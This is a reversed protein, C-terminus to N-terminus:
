YTNRSADIQSSRADYGSFLPGYTITNTLTSDVGSAQLVQRHLLLKGANRAFYALVEFERPTLSVEAGNLRVLRASFDVELADIKSSASSNRRANFEALAQEVHDM